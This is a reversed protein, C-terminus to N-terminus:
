KKKNKRLILGAWELDEPTTIKINEYSGDILHIKEGYKELVTADDTFGSPNVMEYARKILSIRFTQPTQVLRYKNRDVSSSNEGEMLRLSDKSPVATIANGFRAAYYYSDHILRRSVFPRVGDHIAVLGDGEIMDLGNRVSGTRDSGGAYIEHPIDFSYEDRLMRWNGTESEPLILIIKIEPDYNFFAHITHMLIPRDGLKLFQKPLEHNMRSGRGGAVILAYNKEM